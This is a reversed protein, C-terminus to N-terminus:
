FRLRGDDDFVAPEVDIMRHLAVTHESAFEYKVGTCALLIQLALEPAYRGKVGLTRADHTVTKDYIVRLGSENAFQELARAMSGPPINFVKRAAPGAGADVLGLDRAQAPATIALAAILLASLRFPAFLGALAAITACPLKSAMNNSVNM